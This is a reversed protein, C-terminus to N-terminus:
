KLLRPGGGAAFRTLAERREAVAEENAKVVENRFSNIAAGAQRSQQANELLLMPLFSDVCGFKDVMEGSQPNRLKLNVFKPCECGTIIERCTKAFGTAPCKINQDPLM